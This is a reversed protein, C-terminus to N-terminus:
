DLLLPHDTAYPSDAAVLQVGLMRRPNIVIPARLNIFAHDDELRVLALWLLPEGTEAEIRKRDTPLLVAAYETVIQRPDLALFSPRPEDLGQLCTFPQLVPAAIVVFRRCGAFGPLGERMAIVDEPSAEFSGFRTEVAMDAVM